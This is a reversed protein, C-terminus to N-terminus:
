LKIDGLNDTDDFFSKKFTTNGFRNNKSNKAYRYLSTSNVNNQKEAYCISREEKIVAKAAKKMDVTAFNGNKKRPTAMDPESKKCVIISGM